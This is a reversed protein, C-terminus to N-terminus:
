TLSALWTDFVEKDKGVSPKQYTEDMPSKGNSFHLHELVVNNLYTIKKKRKAIEFWANDIYTRKCGPLALWGTERVWDGNVVFHTPQRDANLYDECYSLGDKGAEILKEDWHPTRPVVDDALFGYWPENPFLSFFANAIDGNSGLPPQTLMIWKLPFIVCQYQIIHPDDDDVWVVGESDAGTDEYANFFRQLSRPRLRSPLFWM